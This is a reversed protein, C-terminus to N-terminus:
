CKIGGDVKIISDNIYNADSSALFLVTNAIEIPEAFRGLLIKSEQNKKFAPDMNMNMPTNIWGPCVCNVNIYPAYHNALNHTMNIVAAKSADYDLGYEYYSDIGNNSSINIIKGSKQNLMNNGIIRSVLFTGVTNVELVKMFEDKTKLNFDNDISIGANNVLVDLKGFVNIIKDIMNKIDNENTIDCKIVLAEIRFEKEVKEKLQLAEKEHTLYNIVVNYGRKAAEYIITSGLGISSGTVLIVKKNM